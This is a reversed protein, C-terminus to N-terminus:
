DRAVDLLTRRLLHIARARHSIRNKEAPSLEAFTKDFGSAQFVPDYGFGDLGRPRSMITGEVVGEVTTLLNGERALALWCRFRASYTRVARKELEDLLKGINEADTANDGAYRASYIGPAGNLADVELGSDDAVILGSCVKSAEVAKLIANMEFTRGTEAVVPIDRRDKLDRVDFGHGLIEAFERTKQSNRTAVILRHV